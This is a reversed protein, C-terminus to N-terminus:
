FKCVNYQPLINEKIVRFGKCHGLMGKYSALSQNLSEESVLGERVMKRELSLNKFMRRKTKTRLIRHDPFSVMGLFDVGSSFTKVYVKDPHLELKLEDKLFRSIRPILNKLHAKNESMIVFDDAYRIYYKEKMKHKMFQDFRNMYINVFLQSTLNGLPLGVNERNESTFSSIINEMLNIIDEDPIHEKLIKM